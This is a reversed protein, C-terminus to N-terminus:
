SEPPTQPSAPRPGGPSARRAKWREYFMGLLGGGAAGIAISILLGLGPHLTFPPPDTVAIVLDYTVNQTSTTWILVSFATGDAAGVPFSNSYKAVCDEESYDVYYLSDLNADHGRILLLSACGGATTVNMWYSIRQGDRAGLEYANWLLDIRTTHTIRYPNESVAYTTASVVSSVLVLALVIAVPLSARAAM